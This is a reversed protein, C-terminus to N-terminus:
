RQEPVHEAPWCWAMDSKVREPSPLAPYAVALLDFNTGRRIACAEFGGQRLSRELTTATFGTKHAMFLNGKAMSARHGYLMDLPAIPGAPSVYAPEDLKDQAVLECVAQLDPCALVLIGDPKIVRRFERLAVEVEHPHLHEINHSSFVADVSAEGVPSMDLMSAVIDPKVAPNIDLRIEDWFGQFYAPLSRRDASGSGVHLVRRRSIRPAEVVDGGLKGGACWAQWMRRYLFELDRAFEEAQCLPSRSMRLRIDNRLEALRERDGALAVASRIYSPWDSHILEQLGVNTLASASQRSVINDGALTVVPVGMWLAELTTMGGNFPFPDLAIDVEGYEEFMQHHSSSPRLILRASDMGQAEFRESLRRATEEDNLGGAKILLRADPVAIAIRTWADIVPDALKEPRNFSGFTVYGNRAAPSEAVGPAYYPPCYCFRSHPLRVLTESFRQRGGQPSTYPDSIFYDISSLGTSHFYGIWTAQVPAPKLAFVPLRNFATHGSLDVLIDIGLDRILAAVEEDAMLQIEHWHDAHRRIAATVEDAVTFSSFCHIEVAQRDHCRVVERLLSGVPHNCFDGSVYGIRLRREPDGSPTHRFQKELLPAEYREAWRMHRQFLEEPSLGPLYNSEFPVNSFIGSMEPRLAVAKEYYEISELSNGRASLCNALTVLGIIHDPHRDLLKRCAAEAAALQRSSKLALAEMGMLYASKGREAIRRRILGVSDQLAEANNQLIALNFLAEDYGPQLELAKRYALLGPRAKGTHVLVNGLNVHLPASEPHLEIAARAAAEADAFRGCEFLAAVRNALAEYFRPDRQLVREFCELAREPQGEVLWSEGLNTLAQPYDPDIELARQYARRAQDFEALHRHAAGFGTWIGPNGPDLRIAEKYAALAEAFKGSALRGKGLRVMAQAGDRGGSNGAHRFCTEAVAALRKDDLWIGLRFWFFASLRSMNPRPQKPAPM